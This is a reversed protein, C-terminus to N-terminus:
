WRSEMNYIPNRQDISTSQEKVSEQREKVFMKIKKETYVDNDLTPTHSPYGYVKSM